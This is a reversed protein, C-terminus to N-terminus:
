SNEVARGGHRPFSISIGSQEVDIQIRADRAAQLVTEDLHLPGSASEVRVCPSEGGVVRCRARGEGETEVVALLASGIVIRVVDADADVPTDDMPEVIQLEGGGARAAPTLLAGLRRVLLAADVPEHMPRALALLAETMSIVTGLQESAVTAYRAVASAPNDPNEARSRVVELNVSVGNLAGRVGHAARAAIRQLTELWLADVSARSSVEAPRRPREGAAGRRRLRDSEPKPTTLLRRSVWRRM